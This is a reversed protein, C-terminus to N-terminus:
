IVKRPNMLGKPDLSAKLSRMVELAVPDKITKLMDRKKQGIGHEASISGHYKRLLEILVEDFQPYHATFSPYSKSPCGLNFHLNGDGLHGFGYMKVDPVIKQVKQRAEDYFAAIHELPLAIDSKYAEGSLKEAEPTLERITWIAQRQAENIAITADLVLGDEMMEALIDTMMANLPMAGQTDPVAASEASSTIDFLVSFPPITELPARTEPFHHLVNDIITKPMLEFTTVQGGSVAQFRHFVEIAASIDRVGAFATVAAKPMPFLKLTAATIIGLIGEGGIFLNKLDLGTNDKRLSSLLNLVRGGPLVVEVGLTLDRATGYRVVNLGGANTSLNGGISCSGKAALDLPFLLDHEAAKRKIEELVCGAEVTIAHGTKDIQRIRNLRKTSIVISHGQNDPTAGGCLGTNGGQPVVPLDYRDALALLASVQKTAEPLAVALAKGHYVGRWDTLYPATDAASTLVHKAGVIDAISNRIEDPTGLPM